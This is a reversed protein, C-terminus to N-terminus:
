RAQETVRVECLRMHMYLFVKKETPIASQEWNKSRSNQSRLRPLFRRRCSLTHYPDKSLFNEKRCIEGLHGAQSPSRPCAPMASLPLCPLNVRAFAAAVVPLWTCIKPPNLYGANCKSWQCVSMEGSQAVEMAITLTTPIKHPGQSDLM